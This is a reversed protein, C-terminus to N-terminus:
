KYLSEAGEPSSECVRHKVNYKKHLRVKVDSNLNTINRDVDM